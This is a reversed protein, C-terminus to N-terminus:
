LYQPAFAVNAEISHPPKDELNQDSCPVKTTCPNSQAEHPNLVNLALDLHDQLAHNM